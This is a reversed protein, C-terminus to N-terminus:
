YSHKAQYGNNKERRQKERHSNKSKSHRNMNGKGSGDDFRQKSNSMGIRYLNSSSSSM